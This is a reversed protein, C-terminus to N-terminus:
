ILSKILKNYKEKFDDMDEEFDVDFADACNERTMAESIFDGAELLPKWEVGHKIGMVDLVFLMDETCMNGLPSKNYPCQGLGAIACDINTIGKSLAYIVLDMGIFKSDHFHFALKEKPVVTLIDKLMKELKEIDAFAVNDQIVIEDVNMKHLHAAVECVKQTNMEKQLDSGFSFGIYGRTWLKLNKADNIVEDMNKLLTKVDVKLSNKVTEECATVAFSIGDYKDAHALKVSNRNPAFVLYKTTNKKEIGRAILRSDSLQPILKPHMFSTCEIVPLKSNGLKNILQIKDETAVMFPEVQLGDRPGVEILKVNKPYAVKALQPM